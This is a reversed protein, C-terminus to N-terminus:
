VHRGREKFGPPIVLTIRTGADGQVEMTAKLQSVLSRVIRTGVGGGDAPRAEGMGRGDDAVVLTAGGRVDEIYRVLITGSARDAFAHKAANTVLENVLLGLTVAVEIPVAEGEAEVTLAITQESSQYSAAIGECLQQLFSGPAIRSPSPASILLRHVTSLARIRGATARFSEKAAPDTVRSGELFILANIQQLNNKVRHYVERLLLDRDDLANSLEGMTARLRAEVRNEITASHLVLAALLVMTAIALVSLRFNADFWGAETAVLVLLCLLFPLLIVLPFLRRVAKSGEGEGFLVAVWGIRPWMALLVSALAVFALATHLAMATFISVAYLAHADFVYGVVATLSLLLAATACVLLPHRAEAPKPLWLLCVASLLFCIATAPAMSTSGGGEPISWLIDDIGRGAGLVIVLLNGLAVGGVALAVLRLAMAARGDGEASLQRWLLVGAIALFSAATSPVMAAYDPRLRVVADWGFGWGLVLVLAAVSLVCALAM